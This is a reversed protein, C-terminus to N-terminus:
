TMEAKSVSISATFFEMTTTEFASLLMCEQQSSWTGDVSTVARSWSGLENQDMCQMDDKADSCMKDVMEKVIPYM